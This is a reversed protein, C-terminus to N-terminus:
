TGTATAVSDREQGRSVTQDREHLKTMNFLFPMMGDWVSNLTRDRGVGGLRAYSLMAYCTYASFRWGHAM